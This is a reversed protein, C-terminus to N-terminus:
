QNYYYQYRFGSYVYVRGHKVAGNAAIIGALSGLLWGPLGPIFKAIAGVGVGRIANISYSSLYVKFTGSSVKGQIGNRGATRPSRLGLAQSFESDSFTIEFTDGNTTVEGFNSEKAQEILSSLEESTLEGETGVTSQAVTEAAHGKITLVNLSTSGLMTLVLLSTAIKM